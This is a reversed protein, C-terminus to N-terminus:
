QKRRKWYRVGKEKRVYAVRQSVTSFRNLLAVDAEACLTQDVILSLINLEMGTMKSTTKTVNFIWQSTVAKTSSSDIADQLAKPNDSLVLAPRPDALLEVKLDDNGVFCQYERATARLWESVEVTNNAYPKEIGECMLAFDGQRVHYCSYNASGLESHFVERIDQLHTQVLETLALTELMLQRPEAEKLTAFFLNDVALVQDQCGGLLHQVLHVSVVKNFLHKLNVIEDDTSLGMSHSILRASPDFPTHRTLRLFRWPEIELKEFEEFSIPSLDDGPFAQFASGFLFNSDLPLLAYFRQFKIWRARNSTDDLFASVRPTLLPPIVLQRGLVKAWYYAEMIAQVQNNTGFQPEFLLYRTSITDSQLIRRSLLATSSYADAVCLLPNGDKWISPIPGGPRGWALILERCDHCQQGIAYLFKTGKALLIEKTSLKLEGDLVGLDGYPALFFDTPWNSLVPNLTTTSAFHFTPYMVVLGRAYMFETILEKFTLATTFPSVSPSPVHTTRRLEVFQYFSILQDSWYAVAETAPHSSLFTSHHHRDKGLAGSNVSMLSIGLLSSDRCRQQRMYQYIVKELFQFYFTSLNMNDSLSILLTNDGAKQAEQALAEWWDIADSRVIHIPGYKWEDFDWEDSTTHIFLPLDSSWGSIDAQQLQTWFSTQDDKNVICRVHIEIRYTREPSNGCGHVVNPIGDGDFMQPTFKKPPGPYLDASLQIPLNAPDIWHTSNVILKRPIQQTNKDQTSDERKPRVTSVVPVPRANVNLAEPQQQEETPKVPEALIEELLQYNDWTETSDRLLLSAISIVVLFIQLRRNTTVRHRVKLRPAIMTMPLHRRFSFWSVTKRQMRM